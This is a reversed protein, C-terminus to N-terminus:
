SYLQSEEVMSEHFDDIVSKSREARDVIEEEFDSSASWDISTSIFDHLNMPGKQKLVKLTDDTCLQSYEPNKQVFSKVAKETILGNKASIKQVVKLIRDDQRSCFEFAYFRLFEEIDIQGSHDEDIGEFLRKIDHHSLNEDHHTLIHLASEFEELDLQGNGDTDFKKLVGKIDDIMWGKLTDLEVLHKAFQRFGNHNHKHALHKLVGEPLTHSSKSNFWPHYKAEQATLRKTPDVVLLEAILGKADESMYVGKPFWPGRGSKETTSFGKAAFKILKVPDQTKIAFPLYGFLLEFTMVGIAWLDVAETYKKKLMEPAMYMPTGGVHTMWQFRNRKQSLGFDIVKVKMTEEDEFLINEPKLDCHIVGKSHAYKTAKLIQHIIDRVVRENLSGKRKLFEFLDGGRLSEMIIYLRSRTEFQSHFRCINKHELKQMIRVEDRLQKM